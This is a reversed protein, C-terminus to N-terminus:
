DPVRIYTLRKLLATLGSRRAEAGCRGVDGRGLVAREAGLRKFRGWIAASWRCTAVATERWMWIDELVAM